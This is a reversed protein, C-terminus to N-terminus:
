CNGFHRRRVSAGGRGHGMQEKPPSPCVFVIGVAWRWEAGFRSVVVGKGATGACLEADSALTEFVQSNRRWIWGLDGVRFNWNGSRM